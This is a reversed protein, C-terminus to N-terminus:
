TREDCGQRLRMLEGPFDQCNEIGPIESEIVHQTPKQRRKAVAEFHISTSPLYPLVRLVM